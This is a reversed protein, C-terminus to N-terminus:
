GPALPKEFRYATDSSTVVFGGHPHFAVGVLSPAAVVLEPPRGAVVRYLGSSGALAEVVHLVGAPDFALGQPRGFATSMTDVVGQPDIRYVADYPGLTPGTVYLCEDPGFALHFAAVSAPLTAFASVQGSPPVKFITGSRDGVFMAGDAGFALGCAVGLEAATTKYTGDAEVRYIAGDFRSSVHLVGDRDFALSTANAIGSVFSDRTGDPAVRFISVPMQQGRSGSNTVYLHGEADIAPSDVQHFGTAWARGIEVFITEGAIGEVRVATPGGDLGAPLLIGITSHSAFVVRAPSDGVLVAPGGAESVPLDAGSLNVRAGEVACLPEVRSLRARAPVPAV